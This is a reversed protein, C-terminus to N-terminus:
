IIQWVHTGDDVGLRTGCRFTMANRPNNTEECIIFKYSDTVFEFYSVQGDRIQSMETFHQDEISGQVTEDSGLLRHIWRGFCDLADQREKENELYRYRNLNINLGAGFNKIRMAKNAMISCQENIGWKDPLDHTYEAYEEQSFPELWNSIKQYEEITVSM